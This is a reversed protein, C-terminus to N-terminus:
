VGCEAVSELYLNDTIKHYIGRSPGFYYEVHGDEPKDAYDDSYYIFYCSIWSPEKEYWFEIVGGCEETYSSIFKCGLRKFVIKGSETNRSLDKVISVRNAEIEDYSMGEIRDLINEATEELEAHYKEAMRGSDYIRWYLDVGILLLVPVLIVAVIIIIKTRKRM